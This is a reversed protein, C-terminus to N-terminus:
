DFMTELVQAYEGFTYRGFGVVRALRVTEPRTYPTSLTVTGRELEVAAITGVHILGDDTTLNIPSLNYLAAANGRDKTLFTILLGILDLM